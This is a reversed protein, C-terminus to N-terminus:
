VNIYLAAVGPHNLVLVKRAIVEFVLHRSSPDINHRCVTPHDGLLPRRTIRHMAPYLYLMSISHLDTGYRSLTSFQGILM